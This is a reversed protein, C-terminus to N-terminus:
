MKKEAQPKNGLRMRRQPLHAKPESSFITVRRVALTEGTSKQFVATIENTGQKLYVRPFLIQMSDSVVAMDQKEGNVYLYVSKESTDSKVLMKLATSDGFIKEKVSAPEFEFYLESVEQKQATQREAMKQLFDNKGDEKQLFVPLAFFLVTLLLFASWKLVKKLFFKM